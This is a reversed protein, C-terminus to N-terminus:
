WGAGWGARAALQVRLAGTEDAAMSGGGFGDGLLYGSRARKRGKAKKGAARATSSRLLTATLAPLRRAAGAHAM